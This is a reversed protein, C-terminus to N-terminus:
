ELSKCELDRELILYLTAGLGSGEVISCSTATSTSEGASAQTISAPALVLQLNAQTPHCTVNHSGM